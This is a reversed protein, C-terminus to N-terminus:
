FYDSGMAELSADNFATDLISDIEDDTLTLYKRAKTQPSVETAVEMATPPVFGEPEPASVNSVSYPKELAALQAEIEALPLSKDIEKLEQRATEVGRQADNLAERHAVIELAYGAKEEHTQLTPKFLVPELARALPDAKKFEALRALPFGSRACVERPAGTVRDILLDFPHQALEEARKAHAVLTTTLSRRKAALLAPLDRESDYSVNRKMVGQPTFGKGLNSGKMRVGDLEFVFGTLKKGDVLFPNVGINQSELRAVFETMTLERKATEPLERKATKPIEEKATEPVDEKAKELVASIRHQLELKASRVGTQAAQEREGRTAQRCISDRSPPPPTLNHRVAIARGVEEARRKNQWQPVVEGDITVNSAYLHVHDCDKDRHQILVFASRSYGMEKRYEGAVERWDEVKLKEGKPLSFIAHHVINSVRPNLEHFGAFGEGLERATRGKINSSLIRARSGKIYEPGTASSSAVAPFMKELQTKPSAKEHESGAVFGQVAKKLEGKRGNGLAYDLAARADKGTVIKILM